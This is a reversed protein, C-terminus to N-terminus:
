STTQSNALHRGDVGDGNVNQRLTNKKYSLSVVLLVDDDDDCHSQTQAKWITVCQIHFHSRCYYSIKQCGALLSWNFHCKFEITIILNFISDKVSNKDCTLVFSLCFRFVKIKMNHIWQAFKLLYVQQIINGFISCFHTLFLFFSWLRHFKLWDKSIACIFCSVHKLSLNLNMM